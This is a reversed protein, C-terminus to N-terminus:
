YNVDFRGSEIKIYSAGGKDFLSYSFKGAIFNSISDFRSIDLIAFGNSNIIDRSFYSVEKQRASLNGHNKDNFLLTYYGQKNIKSTIIRIWEKDLGSIDDRIYYYIDLEGNSYSVHLNHIGKEYIPWAKGNILCGFTGLGSATAPPLKDIEEEKKCGAYLLSICCFLVFVKHPKNM